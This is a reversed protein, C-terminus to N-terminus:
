GRPTPEIGALITEALRAPVDPAVTPVTGPPSFIVQPLIQGHIAGVVLIVVADIDASAAIRGLRQEAGLYAALLDPLGRASPQGLTQPSGTFAADGGVM